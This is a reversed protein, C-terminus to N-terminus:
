NFFSSIEMFFFNNTNVQIGAHSCLFFDFLSKTVIDRDVVTGPPVNESRGNRDRQDIAFFRTHHRKQVVVFTVAPKYAPNVKQCAERIKNMEHRIVLSFQGESVGDRFFVIRKPFCKNIRYYETMLSFVMQDLSHIMEYAQGKPTKQAFLRAGYFTGEKDFSGTVAAISETVKTDGPSPHTVDAGFFMVPGDYIYKLHQAFLQNSPSLLWNRGSLKTNIKLLINSITQDQIRNVNKDEVGQTLVGYTLDGCTKVM